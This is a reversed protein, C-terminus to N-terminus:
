YNLVTTNIEPFCEKIHSEITSFCDLTEISYENEWNDLIKIEEIGNGAYENMFNEIFNKKPNLRTYTDTVWKIGDNFRMKMAITTVNVKITFDRM